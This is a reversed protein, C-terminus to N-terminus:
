SASGSVLPRVISPVRRWEAREAGAVDFGAAEITALTERNCNCGDGFSKWIGHLRDQRRALGPDESRVHELFLLSGGPRLVRRVEALTRGPDSVTCLVLTSVVTDFSDDDFPLMEGPARVIEVQRGLRAARRRLREAMNPEPEALALRDLGKPYHALNLGTGAGLELVSGRAESVLRRRREAMGARETWWMFPDYLLASFRSGKASEAAAEAQESTPGSMAM